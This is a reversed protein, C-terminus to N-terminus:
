GVSDHAEAFVPRWGSPPAPRRREQRRMEGEGMVGLAACIRRVGNRPPSKAPKRSAHFHLNKFPRRPTLNSSTMARGDYSRQQHRSSTLPRNM